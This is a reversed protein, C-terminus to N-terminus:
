GRLISFSPMEIGSSLRNSPAPRMRRKSPSTPVRHYGSSRQCASIRVGPRSGRERRGLLSALPSPLKYGTVTACGDGTKVPNGASALPSPPLVRRNEFFQQIPVVLSPIAWAGACALRIKPAFLWTTCREARGGRRTHPVCSRLRPPPPDPAPPPALRLHRANIGSRHALNSPTELLRVRQTPPHQLPTFAATRATPPAPFRSPKRVAQLRFETRPKPTRPTRPPPQYLHQRDGPSQFLEAAV